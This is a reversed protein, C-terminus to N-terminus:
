MRKRGVIRDRVNRNSDQFPLLTSVELDVEYSDKHGCKKCTLQLPKFKLKLISILETLIDEADPDVLNSLEEYAQERTLDKNDIQRLMLSPFLIIENYKSTDLEDIWISDEYTYFGFTFTRDGFKVDLPYDFEIDESEFFNSSNIVKSIKAGCEKCTNIYSFSRNPDTFLGLYSLVFKADQLILKNFDYNLLCKSAIEGIEKKTLNKSGLYTMEGLTLARLNFEKVNYTLFKSPIETIKLIQQDLM